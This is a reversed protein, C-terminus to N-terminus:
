WLTPKGISDRPISSGFTFAIPRQAADFEGACWTALDDAFVPEDEVPARTVVFAELRARAPDTGRQARVVCDVVAEHQCLRRGVDAPSVNTGAIQVMGDSRPGVRLLRDSEWTLVDNLRIPAAAPRAIARGYEAVQWFEFLRFPSAPDDRWGIGATESSGYIEILRALGLASLKAALAAPMPATSTVGVVDDPLRRGAEAVLSWIHPTAIVIDGPAILGAWSGPGSGRLDVTEIGLHLPLRITHLFGYIHHPPVLAAVRRRPGVIAAFAAIETDLDAMTQTCKSPVGTSGSTRFTIAAFRMKLTEEVVNVWAGVTRRVLLYDESGVEHLHFYENLRLACDLRMLSDVGVGDEDISTADTWGAVVAPSVDRRTARGIEDAILSVVIRRIAASDCLKTSRVDAM